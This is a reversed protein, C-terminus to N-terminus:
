YGLMNKGPPDVSPPFTPAIRVKTLQEFAYALKILTPEQFKGGFFSIGIPLGFVYGAPVTINPYGAVAAASSSGGTYHDGNIYDTLWCPGGSPAVIADLQHENLIADIGKDRSLRWCTELTTKYEESDLSGKEEAMVFLEQGFYPMVEDRHENNFEILEKLNSPFLESGIKALYENMDHKFDYLLVELEPEELDDLTTIDTPDVIVAGHNKMLQISDEMIQDVHNNKGFFNRAIGIRAEMLGDKDLFITYDIPFETYEKKMDLTKIDQPDEGVMVSLIIAADHVNRAMPGATDQNYSIPIIGSRSILGISPKIGVISNAHSPCVVSGDTETGIALTCLNAAVAVASGSSSGCPNRDLCYPNNTQGGRSSWGSTSRAGRFNAWESLNTKGLIIAGSGRIKKVLFADESARYGELALSGATTMMKDGTEINDKLLVPIGHLPGRIKGQKLDSDLSDAIELAEPNIEIVSNLNPGSKDIESIRALFQEALKRATLSGKKMLEHIQQISYEKM